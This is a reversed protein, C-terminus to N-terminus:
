QGKPLIVITSNNDFFKDVESKLKYQKSIRNLGYAYNKQKAEYTTLKVIQHTQKGNEFLVYDYLEYKVNVDIM